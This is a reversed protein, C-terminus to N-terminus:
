INNNGNEEQELKKKKWIVTDKYTRILFRVYFLVIIPTTLGSVFIFFIDKIKIEGILFLQLIKLSTGVIFYSIGIILYNELPM